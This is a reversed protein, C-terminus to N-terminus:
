RGCRCRGPPGGQGCNGVYRGQPNIKCSPAIREELRVIRFRPKETGANDDKQKEEVHSPM